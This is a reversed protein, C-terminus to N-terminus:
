RRRASRLEHARALPWAAVALWAGYAIMFTRNPIGFFGHAPAGPQPAASVLAVVMVVLSLWVVAALTLLPLSKWRADKRLALTLLLVTLLESPVGIMFSVGHMRGSPSMAEHPTSAPDAPFVAGMSLGLAALLLFGLAVCAFRTRLQSRAAVFLAASSTAFAGFCLGMLWGHPGVAYESIMHSAPALEPRLFHLVALTLLALTAASAALRATFRSRSSDCGLVATMADDQM